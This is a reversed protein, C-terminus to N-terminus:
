QGMELLSGWVGIGGGIESQDDLPKGFAQIAVVEGAANLVCSGSTGPVGPPYFLVLGSRVRIVTADFDRPAFADKRRRFDWGRFRVRDGVQPPLKALPYWHPFTADGWPAVRALDRFLDRETTKPSGLLGMVGRSTM